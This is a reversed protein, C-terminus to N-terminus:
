KNIFVTISYEYHRTTRKLTFLGMKGELSSVRAIKTMISVLSATSEWKM